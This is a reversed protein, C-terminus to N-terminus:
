SAGNGNGQNKEARSLRRIIDWIGAGFGFLGGILTLAPSTHFSRDLLYGIGGGVLVGGIMVFPLEMALALQRILGGPDKGPSPNQSPM